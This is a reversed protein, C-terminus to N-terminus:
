TVFDEASFCEKENPLVLPLAVVVEVSLSDIFGEVPLKEKPVLADDAIFSTDVAPDKPCCCCSLLCLIASVEVDEDITFGNVKPAGLVVGPALVKPPNVNPLFSFLEVLAGDFM